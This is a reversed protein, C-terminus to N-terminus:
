RNLRINFFARRVYFTYFYENESLHQCQLIIAEGRLFSGQSTYFLSFFLPFFIVMLTQGPLILEVKGGALLLSNYSVTLM